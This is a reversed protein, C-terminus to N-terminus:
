KNSHVPSPLDARALFKELRDPSRIEPGGDFVFKWSGDSQRKWITLYIGVHPAAPQGDAPVAPRYEYRGWTYGLTGDASVDVMLPQWTIVPKSALNGRPKRLATSAAYEARTLTLQGPMFCQEAMNAEFAEPIGISEAQSCFKTEAAVLEAKWQARRDNGSAMATLATTILVFKGRSNRM